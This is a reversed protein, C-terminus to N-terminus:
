LVWFTTRPECLPPLRSIGIFSKDSSPSARPTQGLPSPPQCLSHLGENGLEAQSRGAEFSRKTAGVGHSFNVDGPPVGGSSASSRLKTNGLLAQSRSSIWPNSGLRLSRVM